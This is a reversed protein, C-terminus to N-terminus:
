ATCPGNSRAQQAIVKTLGLAIADIVVRDGDTIEDAGVGHMWRLVGSEIRSLLSGRSPWCHPDLSRWYLKPPLSFPLNCVRTALVADVQLTQRLADRWVTAYAFAVM